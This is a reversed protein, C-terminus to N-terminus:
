NRGARREVDAFLRRKADGAYIRRFADRLATAAAVRDRKAQLECSRLARNNRVVATCASRGAADGATELTADTDAGRKLEAAAKNMIRLVEAGVVVAERRGPLVLPADISGVGIGVSLVTERM